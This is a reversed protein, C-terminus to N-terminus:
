WPLEMGSYLLFKGTDKTSLSNVTKIIGQASDEIKMVAKPGGMATKVHGPDIAVVCARGALHKAQHVTLMNLATKSISYPTIEATIQGKALMSLSGVGSSINAIVADQALHPVLSQTVLAPGILNSTLHSLLSQATMNMSTQERSHLIAANNILVNVTFEAGLAETLCPVLQSISNESSIDCEVIYFRGRSKNKVDNLASIDANVSRVAAIISNSADLSLQRVTELGVGSRTGTIVYLPM